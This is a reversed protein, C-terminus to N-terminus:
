LEACTVIAAMDNALSLWMALDDRMSVCHTNQFIICDVLLCLLKANQESCLSQFASQDIGQWGKEYSIVKDKHYCFQFALSCSKHLFDKTPM